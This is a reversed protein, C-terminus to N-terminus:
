KVRKATFERAAPGFPPSPRGTESQYTFKLEDGELIATYTVLLEGGNATPVRLKVDLASGKMSGELPIPRFAHITGSVKSGESKLTLTIIQKDPERTRLSTTWNGDLSQALAISTVLVFCITTMWAARKM